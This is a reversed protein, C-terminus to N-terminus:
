STAGVTGIETPLAPKFAETDNQVQSVTLRPRSWPLKTAIAQDAASSSEPDPRPDIKM